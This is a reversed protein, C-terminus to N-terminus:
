SGRGAAAHCRDPVDSVRALNEAVYTSYVWLEDVLEFARDWREPIADTEWAWSAITYRGRVDEGLADVLEPTQDANVCLFNIEPQEGQPLSLEEFTREQPRPPPRRQLSDAPPDTALSRTAVPVGASQLAATYSRAAQGLGLTGRLYGAVLVSPVRREPPEAWEPPAPLLAPQLAMEERGHVWLWGLFGDADGGDLDPYADRVDDREKWVDYAYRNLGAAAGHPAPATLWGAFAEAGAPSFVDGIGEGADAAEVRLRQLRVDYVLGNPLDEPHVSLHDLRVWGAAVLAEARRRVLTSLVPDDLVLKRSAHESLWWPRDPRFGAWRLLRLPRGGATLDGEAEALPREHLNWYSVDYGADELRGLNAFM